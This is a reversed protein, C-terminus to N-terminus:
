LGLPAGRAFPNTWFAIIRVILIGTGAASLASICLAALQWWAPAQRLGRVAIVITTAFLAIPLADGLLSIFPGGPNIKVAPCFLMVVAGAAFLM